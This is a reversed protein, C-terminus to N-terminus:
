KSKYERREKLLELTVDSLWEKQKMKIKTGLVEESTEKIIDTTTRSETDIDETDETLAVLWKEELKQEYVLRIPDTKLKDIDIKKTRILPRNTRLKLKINAMVLQHDSGIGASPFSRSNTVSGM